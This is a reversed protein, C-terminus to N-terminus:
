GRLERWPRTWLKTASGEYATGDPARWAVRWERGAKAVVSKKTWYGRRDFRQTGLTTWAGRGDRYSLTVTGAGRAPRVLGWLTVKGSSGRVPVAVLPLRFGFYAPKPQDSGHPFLGSEFASYDGRPEDDHLLYQSFSKVRPNLYAIRESISRYDSQVDYPVGYFTDPESQVGFETLHLPLRGNIAGAKAAKDLASTMRSLVTITVNDRDILPTYFPGLITSYPHTAVGQTVVKACRRGDVKVPKYRDDLCLMARLFRLPAITGVTRNRNSQPALEGLLVPKRVGASRLGSYAKLYLNRYVQASALTRGQYLPKLLKGLNPENWISWMEVQKGYRRGVATAFKGFAVPDPKTLGDRKSPTAWAPARGTITVHVKLGRARAGEIAADYRAWGSAPYAAPDTANFRPARRANPSPAVSEWVLQIRIGDAGLSAVQDLAWSPNGELLENPAEVTTTQSSSADATAAPVLLAAATLVLPIRRRVFAVEM